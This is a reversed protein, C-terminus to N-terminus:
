TRRQQEDLRVESRMRGVGETNNNPTTVPRRSPPSSHATKVPTEVPRRSPPSSLTSHAEEQEVHSKVPTPLPRRSPFPSPPPKLPTKLPRRSPFPSGSESSPLALHHHKVPQEEVEGIVVQSLRLSSRLYSPSFCKSSPHSDCRYNRHLQIKYHLVLARPTQRAESAIANNDRQKAPEAPRGGRVEDQNVDDGDEGMMANNGYRGGGAADGPDKHQNMEGKVEEGERGRKGEEENDQVGKFGRRGLARATDRAAGKIEEVDVGPFMNSLRREIGDVLELPPSSSPPLPPPLHHSPTKPTCTETMNDNKVVNTSTSTGVGVNSKYEVFNGGGFGLEPAGGGIMPGFTKEKRRVSTKCQQTKVRGGLAPPEVPSSGGTVKKHGLEKGEMEGSAKGNMSKTLKSGRGGVEANQTINELRKRVRPTDYGKFPSEEGRQSEREEANNNDGNNIGDEWSVRRQHGPTAVRDALKKVVESGDLRWYNDVGSEGSKGSRGSSGTSLSSSPQIKPTLPTLPLKGGAGQSTTATHPSTSLSALSSPSDFNKEGTATLYNSLDSAM